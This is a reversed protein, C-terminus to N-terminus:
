GNAQGKKDPEPVDEKPKQPAIQALKAKFAAEDEDAGLQRAAETFRERQSPAKVKGSM